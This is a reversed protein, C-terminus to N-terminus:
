GREHEAGQKAKQRRLLENDLRHALDYTKTGNLLKQCPIENFANLCDNLLQDIDDDHQKNM